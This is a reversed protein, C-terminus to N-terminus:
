SFRWRAIVTAPSRPAVAANTRTRPRIASGTEGAMVVAVRAAAMAMVAALEVTETEGAPAAMAAAREAMVAVAQVAVLGA